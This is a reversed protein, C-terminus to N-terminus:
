GVPNWITDPYRRKLSQMATRESKFAQGAITKVHGSPDKFALDLIVGGAAPTISAEYESKGIKAIYTMM